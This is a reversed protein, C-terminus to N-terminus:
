NRKQAKGAFWIDFDLDVPLASVVRLFSHDLVPGGNGSASEWFCSIRFECGKKKLISLKQKRPWLLKVLLAIHFRVDRSDTRNQSTRFWGNSPVTGRGAQAGKNVVRDPKLNLLSTIEEPKLVDHYICLTAYARSCSPYDHDFKLKKMDISGREHVSSMANARIMKANRMNNYRKLLM